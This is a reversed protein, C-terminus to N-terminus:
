RSPANPVGESTKKFCAPCVAMTRGFVQVVRWGERIKQNRFDDLCQTAELFCDDNENRASEKKFVQTLRERLDGFDGVSPCDCFDCSVFNLYVRVAKGFSYFPM